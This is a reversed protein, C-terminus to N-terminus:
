LSIMGGPPQPKGSIRVRAALPRKGRAGTRAQPNVLSPFLLACLAIFSSYGNHALFVHPIHHWQHHYAEDRRQKKGAEIQQGLVGDLLVALRAASSVRVRM